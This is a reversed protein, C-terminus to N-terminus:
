TSPPYSRLYAFLLNSKVHFLIEKEALGM